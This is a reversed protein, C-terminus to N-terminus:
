NRELKLEKQIQVNSEKVINLIGQLSIYDNQPYIIKNPIIVHEKEINDIYENIYMWLMRFCIKKIDQEVDGHQKEIYERDIIILFSNENQTLLM